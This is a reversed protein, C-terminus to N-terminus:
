KGRQARRRIETADWGADGLAISTKMPVDAPPRTPGAYDDPALIAQATKQPSDCASRPYDFSLMRARDEAPLFGGIFAMFLSPVMAGLLTDPHDGLRFITWFTDKVRRYTVM